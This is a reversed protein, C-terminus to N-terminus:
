DGRGERRSVVVQAPRLVRGDLAFGSRAVDVITRDPMDNSARVAVAEHREPDFQEGPIGTRTVGQRALIAEMQQLVSRLGEALPDEPPQLRLAREVSDVAELWDRLLSERSEAVRSQVERASRKRYNDLDALARRYRDEAQALEAALDRPPADEPDRPEPPAADRPAGNEPGQGEPAREEVARESSESVPSSRTSWRKM